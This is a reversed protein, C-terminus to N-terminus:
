GIVDARPGSQSSLAGLQRQGQSRQVAASVDREARVVPSVDSRFLRRCIPTIFAGSKPLIVYVHSVVIM